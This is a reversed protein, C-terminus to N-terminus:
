SVGGLPKGLDGGGRPSKRLDGGGGGRKCLDHGVGHGKGGEGIEPLDGGGRGGGYMLANVCM